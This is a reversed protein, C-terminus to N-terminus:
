EGVARGRVREVVVVHAEHRERMRACRQHRRRERGALPGASRASRQQVRPDHAELYMDDYDLAHAATGNALSASAASTTDRTGIIRCRAAGGESRAVDQVARAAPERAGALMVGITDLYATCAVARAGPPVQAGAVFEALREIM